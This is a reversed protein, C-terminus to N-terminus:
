GFNFLFDIFILYVFLQVKYDHLPKSTLSLNQSPFFLLITNRRNKRRSSHRNNKPANIPPSNIKIHFFTKFSPTLFKSPAMSRWVYKYSQLRRVGERIKREEGRTVDYKIRYKFSLQKSWKRWNEERVGRVFGYKWMLNLDFM